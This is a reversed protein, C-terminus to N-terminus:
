AEKSKALVLTGCVAVFSLLLVALWLGTRSSDGTNPVEPTTTSTEVATTEEVTTEEETTEEATTEEGTTEEATTEEETTVEETTVEETTTEETTEEATTVEETTTEETTEEATTVEETTTEETTEETTPTYNLENTIAAEYQEPTSRTYSGVAYFSWDSHEEFEIRDTYVTMGHESAGIGYVFEANGFDLGQFGQHKKIENFLVTQELPSLREPTWVFSTNGKKAVVFSMPYSETELEHTLQNKPEVRDWSEADQGITLIVVPDKHASAVEEYYEIESEVVTFNYSKYHGDDGIYFCQDTVDFSYKGGDAATVTATMFLDSETYTDGQHRYLKVTIQSPRKGNTDNSDQWTKEFPLIIKTPDYPTVGSGDSASLRKGFALLCVFLLVFLWLKKM